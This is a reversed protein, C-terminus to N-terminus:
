RFLHMRIRVTYVADIETLSPHEDRWDLAVPAAPKSLPGSPQVWRHGILAQYPLGDHPGAAIRELLRGLGFQTLVSLMISCLGAALVIRRLLVIRCKM